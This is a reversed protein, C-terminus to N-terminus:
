PTPGSKPTEEIIQTLRQVEAQFKDTAEDLGRCYGKYHQFSLEREHKLDKYWSTIFNGILFGFVLLPYALLKHCIIENM